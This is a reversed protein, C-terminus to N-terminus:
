ATLKFYGPQLKHFVLEPDWRQQIRLLRGKSRRGYSSFVDQTIYAYNQYKYPHYLGRSKALQAARDVITQAVGQAAEDDAEDGWTLNINMVLVTILM